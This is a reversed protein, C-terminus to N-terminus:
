LLLQQGDGPREKGIPPDEDEVLGRAGDVRPGLDEDLAGHVLQHQAPRAEDDGMPQRGDAVGIRDQDHVVAPDHFLARVLREEGLAAEVVVQVGRLKRLGQQLRPLLRRSVIAFGATGPRYSRRTPPTIAILSRAPRGASGEEWTSTYRHSAAYKSVGSGDSGEWRTANPVDPCRPDDSFPANLSACMAAVVSAI